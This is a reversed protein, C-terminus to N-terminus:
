LSESVNVILQGQIKGMLEPRDNVGLFLAGTPTQPVLMVCFRGVSFLIRTPTASADSVQDSTSGGIRAILAGIPVGPLVPNPRTQAATFDGDASCDVAFGDPKWSGPIAPNANPNVVVEIKILKGAPACDLVRTWQVGQPDPVKQQDKLTRWVPQAM